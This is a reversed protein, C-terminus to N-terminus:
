YNSDAVDEYVGSCRLRGFINGTCGVVVVGALLPVSNELALYRRDDHRIEETEQRERHRAPQVKSSNVVGGFEVGKEGDGNEGDVRHDIRKKVFVGNDVEHDLHELQQSM